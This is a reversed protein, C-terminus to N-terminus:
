RGQREPVRVPVPVPVPVPEPSPMLEAELSQVMRRWGRRLRNLTSAWSDAM